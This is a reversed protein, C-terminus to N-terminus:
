YLERIIDLYNKFQRVVREVTATVSFHTEDAKAYNVGKTGFRDVVADLLPNILSYTKLDIAAFEEGGEVM